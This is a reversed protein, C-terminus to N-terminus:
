VVSLNHIAQQSHSDLRFAADFDDIAKDPEEKERWTKSREVFFRFKNSNLRIAENFDNIAKDYDAKDKWVMGRFFWFSSTDPEIRIAKDMDAIAKEFDGKKRWVLGRNCLASVHNPNLQIVKTYDTIASDYDGDEYHKIGKKFHEETEMYIKQENLIETLFESPPFIGKEACKSVTEKAIDEGKEVKTVLNRLITKIEKESRLFGYTNKSMGSIVAQWIENAEVQQKESIRALNKLLVHPFDYRSNVHPAIELLWKKIEDDLHEFFEIWLCLATILKRGDESSFDIKQKISNQIYPWLNYVELIIKKREEPRFSYITLIIQHVENTKGRSLLINILSNKDDLTEEKRLFSYVIDQVFRSSCHEPLDEDDLADIIYGHSKLHRYVEPIFNKMYSYGQIACRWRKKDKQNFISELNKVLWEKSMYLFNPIYEPILTFFEYNVDDRNLETNFHLEFEQWADTHNKNNEKDALRCHRLAVNILAEVCKGRPSNIAITVADFDGSKDFSVSKQNELLHKLIDKVKGHHKEDFAHDDSRAGDGILTSIAKVVENRDAAYENKDSTNNNNPSWFDRQGVIDLIYKFLYLWIDDWPLQEKERWCKSYGAIISHIYAMDLNKLKDLHEIYHLPNSAIADKFSQSLGEVSPEEWGGTDKFSKLAKVLDSIEMGNLENTTYPSRPHFIEAKGSTMYSSFDPHEPEAGATGIESQYLEAEKKSYGKIAALWASRHYASAEKLISGNEDKRTKEQIIELTKERQKNSFFQYNLNLFKWMEHQFNHHFFKKDIIHSWFDKYLKRKQGICHIAIRQITAYESDLIEPLYKKAQNPSFEIFGTLSDRYALVLLNEADDHFSNQDHDEIAPQWVSSYGDKELKKLVRTLEDHFVTVGERGLRKGARSAVAEIIRKAWLDDFRLHATQRKKDLTYPYPKFSIRFLKSLLGSAIYVADKDQKNLLKPLLKRGVAEAVLDTDYKDELWYDVANITKDSMTDHSVYFLIEAFRWWVQYNSIKNQKAYETANEIVSLFAEHYSKTEETNLEPATKLLYDVVEWLPITIYGEQESPKPPPLFKSKFYGEKQLPFFWKLGKTERFFLPQLIPENKILVLIEKEEETLNDM